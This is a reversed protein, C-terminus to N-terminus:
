RVTLYKEMYWLVTYNKTKKEFRMFRIGFIFASGMEVILTLVTLFRDGIYIFYADYILASAIIAFMLNKYMHKASAYNHIRNYTMDTQIDSYMSRLYKQKRIKDFDKEESLINGCMLAKAILDDSVPWENRELGGKEGESVGQKSRDKKDSVWKKIEDIGKITWYGIESLLIGCLYSLVIFTYILLGSYDELIKGIGVNKELFYVHIFSLIVLSGPLFYGFIDYLTIKEFVSDM